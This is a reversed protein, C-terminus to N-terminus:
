RGDVVDGVGDVAEGVVVVVGDEGEREEAVVSVVAGEVVSVCSLESLTARSPSRMVVYVACLLVAAGSVLISVM